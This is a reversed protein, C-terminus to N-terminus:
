KSRPKLNQKLKVELNHIKNKNAKTKTQLKNNQKQM